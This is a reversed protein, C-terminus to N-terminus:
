QRRSAARLATARTALPRASRTFHVFAALAQRRRRGPTETEEIARCGHLNSEM